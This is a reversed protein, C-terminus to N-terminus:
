PGFILELGPTASALGFATGQADLVFGQAVFRQGTFGPSPPVTLAARGTADTALTYLLNFTPTWLTVTPLAIATPERAVVLFAPANPAGNELVVEFPQTATASVDGTVSLIPTGQAGQVGFGFSEVLSDELLSLPFSFLERGHVGDDGEFLVLEGVRTFELSYNGTPDLEFLKSSGSASGDVSWPQMGGEDDVRNVLIKSETLRTPMHFFGGYGEFQGQFGTGSQLGNTSWMTVFTQGAAENFRWLVALEDSVKVPGDLSGPGSSLQTVTTGDSSFIERATNPGAAFVLRDNVVILDTPNSPAPGAVLDAFLSTGAPTGDTRWLESESGNPDGGSRFYVYDGLGVFDPWALGDDGPLTEGLPITGAVTGDSVWPEYGTSPLFAMFYVRENWVYFADPFSGETGVLLDGLSETGALTGDTIWPEWGTADTSASLFFRSGLAVAERVTFGPATTGVPLQYTGSVTGDSFWPDTGLSSSGPGFLFRQGNSAFASPWLTEPGPSAEILPTTGAPTGDSIWVDFPSVGDEGLVIAKDRLRGAIQPFGPETGGDVFLNALLQTGGPTGDTIHPETGLAPDNAAFLAGNATAVFGTFSNVDLTSVSVTGLPTGDTRYIGEIAGDFAGFYYESGISGGWEGASHNPIWIESLFATGALTGDTVFLDRDGTGDDDSFILQNNVVGVFSPSASTSLFPGTGGPTGDTSWLAQSGSPSENFFISTSGIVAPQSLGRAGTSFTGASTGDTVFRVFSVGGSQALFTVYGDASTLYTPNNINTGELDLIKATGVATGDTVWLEWTLDILASFVVLGTGTSAMQATGNSMGFPALDVLIDTGATTGDTKWVEWGNVGDDALFLVETGLPTLQVATGNGPGPDVDKVLVTGAATGDTKWLEWGLDVTTATFLVEGSALPTFQRPSSSQHGPQIDLVLRTGSSTGDTIWLESGHDLTKAAFLVEGNGLEYYGFPDSSNPEPVPTTNFDKVLTQASLGSGVSSLALFLLARQM